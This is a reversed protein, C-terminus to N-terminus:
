VRDLIGRLHKNQTVHNRSCRSVKTDAATVILQTYVLARVVFFLEAHIMPYICIYMNHAFHDYRLSVYLIVLLEREVALVLPTM